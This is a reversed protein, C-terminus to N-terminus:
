GVADGVISVHKTSKHWYSEVGSGGASITTAASTIYSGWVPAARACRTISASSLPLLTIMPSEGPLAPRGCKRLVRRDSPIASAEKTSLIPRVQVPGRWSSIQPSPDVETDSVGCSRVTAMM